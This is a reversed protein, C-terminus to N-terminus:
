MNEASVGNMNEGSVSNMNEGSVQTEIVQTQKIRIRGQDDESVRYGGLYLVALGVLAAIAVLLMLKMRSCHGCM